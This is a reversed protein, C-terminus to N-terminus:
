SKNIFLKFMQLIKMLVLKLKIVSGATGTKILAQWKLNRTYPASHLFITEELPYLPNFIRLDNNRFMGKDFKREKAFFPFRRAIM